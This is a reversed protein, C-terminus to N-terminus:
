EDLDVTETYGSRSGSVQLGTPDLDETETYGSREAEVTVHFTSGALLCVDGMGLVEALPHVYMKKQRTKM